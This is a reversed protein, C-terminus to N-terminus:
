TDFRTEVCKETDKYIDDTKIFVIFGRDTDMYCFKANEDYKPKVYDYWLEQMEIKSLRLISLGLYVLNKLLIQFLNQQKITQNQFQIIEEKKETAVLKAVRHKRVNEM